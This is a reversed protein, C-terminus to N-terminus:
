GLTGCSFRHLVRPCDVVWSGWFLIRRQSPFSRRLLLRNGLSLQTRASDLYTLEILRLSQPTLARYMAKNYRRHHGIVRHFPSFLFQHAPCLIVLHGRPRLRFSPFPPFPFPSSHASVCPTSQCYDEQSETLRRRLADRRPRTPLYQSARSEM